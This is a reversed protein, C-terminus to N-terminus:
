VFRIIGERRAVYVEGLLLAAKLMDDTINKPWGKQAFFQAQRIMRKSADEYEELSRQRIQRNVAEPDLTTKALPKGTDPHVLKPM